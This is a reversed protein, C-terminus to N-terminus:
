HGAYYDYGQEAWYDAPRRNTYTLTGIRKLSKIGYKTPVVLRLPAGHAATLPKGNMAYCLLTQPHLAATMELGVYYGGDPTTFGVYSPVDEPRQAIDPKDGSPTAPPYRQVFDVLRAGTWQVITSWGEICRLETILDVRPLAKIQALVFAATGDASDLGEVQLSWAAPDFDESLGIDGNERPMKARAAPFTPALRAPSSLDRAIEENTQLVRRLPWALMDEDRRTNLWRLGGYGAGAAVAAWLFSRRSMRRMQQEASEGTAAAPPAVTRPAAPLAAAPAAAEAKASPPNEADPIERPAKDNDSTM